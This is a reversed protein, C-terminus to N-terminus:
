RIKKLVYNANFTATMMADEVHSNTCDNENPIRCLSIFRNYVIKPTMNFGWAYGTRNQFGSFCQRHMEEHMHIGWSVNFERFERGPSISSQYKEVRELLTDVLAGPRDVVPPTMILDSVRETAEPTRMLVRNESNLLESRNRKLPTREDMNSDLTREGVAWPFLEALSVPDMPQLVDEYVVRNISIVDRSNENDYDKDSERMPVITKFIDFLRSQPDLSKDKKPLALIEFLPEFLYALLHLALNAITGIMLTVLPDYSFDAPVCNAYIESPTWKCYRVAIASIRVYAAACLDPTNSANCDASHDPPFVMGMVVLVLFISLNSMTYTKLYFAGGREPDNVNLLKYFLVNRKLEYVLRAGYPNLSFVGKVFM